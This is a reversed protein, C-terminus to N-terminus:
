NALRMDSNQSRSSSFALLQKIIARRSVALRM